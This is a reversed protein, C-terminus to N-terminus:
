KMGTAVRLSDCLCRLTQAGKEIGEPNVNALGQRAVGLLLGGCAELMVVLVEQQNERAQPPRSVDHTWSSGHIM